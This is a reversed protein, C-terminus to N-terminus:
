VGGRGESRGEVYGREEVDDEGGVMWRRAGKRPFRAGMLVVWGLGAIGANVAFTWHAAGREAFGAFVVGFLSTSSLRAVLEVLSIASLADM